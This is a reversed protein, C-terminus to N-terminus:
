RCVYLAVPAGARVAMTCQLRKAQRGCHSTGWPMTTVGARCVHQRALFSLCEEAFASTHSENCFIGMKLHDCSLPNCAARIRGDMARRTLRACRCGDVFEAYTRPQVRPRLRLPERAERLSANEERPRKM